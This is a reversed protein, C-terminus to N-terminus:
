GRRRVTDFLTEPGVRIVAGTPCARVCAPGGSVTECLDCKRALERNKESKVPKAREGIGHASGFLLQVLLNSRKPPTASLKIADYPCNRVCNGCGICTDNVIVAGSATRELANPPCDAMCHPTECHRCSLPLHLEAFTPGADRDLRSIGDHTEACAKECYDCRICLSEDIVIANTAEGIGNQTLFAIKRAADGGSAAAANEAQRERAKAEVVARLQPNREVQARFADASLRVAEVPVTARVTAMRPQRYLLAMEGVVGGAAIFDLVEDQGGVRRSVTCSGARIVFLDAGEEGEAILAEGPAFRRLEAAAVTEALAEASLDSSLFSQLQRRLATEDMVRKAVASSAILKLAANRPIELCVTRAGPAALVDASRRRGMILGMEGFFDGAELRARRGKPLPLEVAGEAIVFLSDGADGKRILHAGATPAHIDADLLLERLQLTTLGGFLPISARWAALTDLVSRFGPLAKMKEHLLGVDPGQPMVGTAIYDVVEYGQNMCHKILPYGALAGIIFLGPRDSEYVDSVRPFDSGPDFVGGCATVFQKPAEAGLRAIVRDAPTRVLGDPTKLTLVGDEVSVPAANYAVELKRDKIAALILSINAAKARAFERGRNVITVRNEAAALAVANEIAADGAGIVVVDKDFFAEPDDLQYGVMPEGTTSRITDVGPLTAADLKRLNGQLGVALVVHRARVTEGDTLRIRFDGKEGEIGAVEAKFRVNVGLKEVGADWWGLIDERAALRFELDSQLPLRDPTAMVLKKKQYKYITDALHDARELLVHSLRRAAARGAASLGAPGGGVIAVDLIDGL